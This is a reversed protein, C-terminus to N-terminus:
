HAKFYDNLGNFILTSVTFITLITACITMLITPGGLWVGILAMGRGQEGSVRMQRLAIIGTILAIAGFLIATPYCILSSGVLFPAWGICFSFLTLIAFILSVVSLRNTLPGTESM